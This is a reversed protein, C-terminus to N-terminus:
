MWMLSSLCKENKWFVSIYMKKFHCTFISTDLVCEYHRNTLDGPSLSVLQLFQLCLCMVGCRLKYFLFHFLFFISIRFPCNKIYIVKVLAFFRKIYIYAYSVYSTHSVYADLQDFIKVKKEIIWFVKRYTNPIHKRNCYSNIIEGM